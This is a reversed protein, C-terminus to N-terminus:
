PASSPTTPSARRATTSTASSRPADADALENDIFFVMRALAEACDMDHEGGCSM